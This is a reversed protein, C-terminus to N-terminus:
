QKKERDIYDICKKKTKATYIVPRLGNGLNEKVVWHRLKYNYYCHFEGLKFHQLDVNEKRNTPIKKISGGRALFEDIGETKMAYEKDTTQPSRHMENVGEIFQPKYSLVWDGM